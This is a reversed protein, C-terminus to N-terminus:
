HTYILILDLRSVYENFPRFTGPWRLDPWKFYTNGTYLAIRSQTRPRGRTVARRAVKVDLAHHGGGFASGSLELDPYSRESGRQAEAGPLLTLRDMLFNVVSVELVNALAAPEQPLPLLHGGDALRSELGEPDAAKLPWTSAPSARRFLGRVDFAYEACQNRLWALSEVVEDM